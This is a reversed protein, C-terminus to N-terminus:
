ISIVVVNGTRMNTRCMLVTDKQINREAAVFRQEQHTCSM